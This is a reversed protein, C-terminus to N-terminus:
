IKKSHETWFLRPRRGQHAAEEYAEDKSDGKLAQNPQCGKGIHFLLTHTAGTCIQEINALAWDDYRSPMPEILTQEIDDQGISRLSIIPKSTIL